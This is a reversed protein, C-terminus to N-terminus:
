MPYKTCSGNKKRFFDICCGMKRFFDSISRMRRFFIRLMLFARCGYTSKCYKVVNAFTVPPTAYLVLDFQEKPFYKRVARKLYPEIKLTNIGKKIFNVRFLEGVLVKVIRVGCETVLVTKETDAPGAAFAITVHHGRETLGNVLDAYIGPKQLQPDSLTLYLIEM